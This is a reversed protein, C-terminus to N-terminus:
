PSYSSGPAKVEPHAKVVRRPARALWSDIVVERLDDASMADLWCFVTANALFAHARWYIDLDSAALAEAVGVDATWVQLVQREDPWRLRAFPKPGCYFAPSGEHAEGLVSEPLGDCLDTADKWTAM